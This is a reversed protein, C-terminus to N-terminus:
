FNIRVLQESRADPVLMLNTAMFWLAERVIIRGSTRARNFLGIIHQYGLRMTQPEKDFGSVSHEFQSHDNHM